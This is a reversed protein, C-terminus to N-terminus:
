LEEDSLTNLRLAAFYEAATTVGLTVLTRVRAARQQLSM